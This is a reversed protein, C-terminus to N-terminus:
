QLHYYSSLSSSTSGQQQQQQHILFQKLNKLEVGIERLRQEIAATSTASAAAGSLELADTKLPTPHTQLLVWYAFIAIVTAIIAVELFNGIKISLERKCRTGPRLVIKWDPLDIPSFVFALPPLVIDKLFTTVAVIIATSLLIILLYDTIRQQRILGTFREFFSQASSPSLNLPNLLEGAGAMGLRSVICRQKRKIADVVSPLVSVRQKHNHFVFGRLSSVEEEGM